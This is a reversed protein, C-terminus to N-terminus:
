EKITHSELFDKVDDPFYDRTKNQMELLDSYEKEQFGQLLSGLFVFMFGCIFTFLSVVFLGVVDFIQHYYSWIILFLPVLISFMLAIHSFRKYNRVGQKAEETWFSAGGSIYHARWRSYFENLLSPPILFAGQIYPRRLGKLPLFGNSNYRVRNIQVDEEGIDIRVLSQIDGWRIFSEKGNRKRLFVGNKDLKIEKVMKKIGKELLIYLYLSVLLLISEVLAALLYEGNLSILLPLLSMILFMSLPMARSMFRANKVMNQNEASIWKSRDELAEIIEIVELSLHM